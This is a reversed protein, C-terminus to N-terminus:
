ITVTVSHYFMLCVLQRTLADCSGRPGSEDKPESLVKKFGDQENFSSQSFRDNNGEFSSIPDRLSAQSEEAAARQGSYSM